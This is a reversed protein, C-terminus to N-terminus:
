KREAVPEIQDVRIYWGDPPFDQDTITILKGTVWIRGDYKKYDRFVEFKDPPVLCWYDKLEGVNPYLNRLSFMAGLKNDEGFFMFSVAIWGRIQIEAKNVKRSKHRLIEYHDINVWYLRHYSHYSTCLHGDIEIWTGIKPLPLKRTVVWRCIVDAWDGESIGTDVAIALGKNRGYEVLRIDTVIGVIKVQYNDEM